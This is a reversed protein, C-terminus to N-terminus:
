KNVDELIQHFACLGSICFHQLESIVVVVKRNQTMLYHAYNILNRVKHRSIRLRTKWAFIKVAWHGAQHWGASIM